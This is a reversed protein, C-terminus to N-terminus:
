SRRGEAFERRGRQITEYLERARGGFAAVLAEHGPTIVAAWAAREQDDLRHVTGGRSRHLEM